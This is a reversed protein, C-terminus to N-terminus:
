HYNLDTEDDQYKTSFRFPNAKAMPGTARSFPSIPLETCLAAKGSMRATQLGQSLALTRLTEVSSPRAFALAQAPSWILGLVVALLFVRLLRM